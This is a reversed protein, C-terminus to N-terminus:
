YTLEHSKISALTYSNSIDTFAQLVPIKRYPLRHVLVNIPTNHDTITIILVQAM